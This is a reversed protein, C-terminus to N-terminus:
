SVCTELSGKWGLEFRRFAALLASHRLSSVPHRMGYATGAITEFRIEVVQHPEHLRLGTGLLRAQIFFLEAETRAM